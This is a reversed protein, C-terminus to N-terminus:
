KCTALMDEIPYSKIKYNGYKRKEKLCKIYSLTVCTIVPKGVKEPLLLGIYTM